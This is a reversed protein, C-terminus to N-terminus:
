EHSGLMQIFEEVSGIRNDFRATAARIVTRINGSIGKMRRFDVPFKRKLMVFLTVGLAYVDAKPSFRYLGKSSFLEPAAFRNSLVLPNGTCEIGLSDYRKTSGFDIIVAEDKEGLMINAPKIDLHLMNMSHMKSLGNAVGKIYKLATKENIAGKSLLAELSGNPLYEMTYYYTGHEEFTDFVKIINPHSVSKIKEAEGIFKAKAVDLLLRNESSDIVDVAFTAPNRRCVDQMFLEKVVVENCSDMNDVALYTISFGGNGLVKKIQYRGNNLFTGHQLAVVNHVVSDLELRIPCQLLNDIARKRFNEDVTISNEENYSNSGYSLLHELKCLFAFVPMKSERFNFARIHKKVFITCRDSARCYTFRILNGAELLLVPKDYKSYENCSVDKPPMGRFSVVMKTCVCDIVRHNIERDFSCPVAEVLLERLPVFITESEHM